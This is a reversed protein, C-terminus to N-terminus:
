ALRVNKSNWDYLVIGTAVSLNMDNHIGYQPISVIHDARNLLEEPIGSKENGFLLVPNDPYQFTRLDESRLDHRREFAILPRDKCFDLFEGLSPRYINEWKHTGMTAKEYMLGSEPAVEVAYIGRVLFNHCNRVIAGFNYYNDTHWVAVDVPFRVEDLIERIEQKTFESIDPAKSM